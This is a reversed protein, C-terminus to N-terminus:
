VGAGAVGDGVGTGVIPGLARDLASGLGNGVPESAGVGTGDADVRGTVGDGAGVRVRYLSALQRRPFPRQSIESM